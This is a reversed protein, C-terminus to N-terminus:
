EVEPEGAAAERQWPHRADRSQDVFAPDLRVIGARPLLTGAHYARMGFALLDLGDPGARHTHAEEAALYVMGDGPGVEYAKGDMWAIGSGGLVYFIEEEVLEAHAPTAWKGPDVQIRQLGVSWTGAATGLDRWTGALHGAERRVPEVDDWHALHKM